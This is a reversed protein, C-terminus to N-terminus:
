LPTSPSLVRRNRVDWVGRGTLRIWPLSDFTLFLLSFVPDAFRYGREQMLRNFQRNAEVVDAWSRLSFAGLELPLSFVERGGEIIVLGGGFDAVRDLAAAMDAPNQGLVVVDFGSSITTALGGLRNTFGIVRTRTIWRGRRDLLAVRLAGAPLEGAPVPETIVSSVLRMGTADEPAAFASAPLRPIVALEYADRWAPPTLPGTLAGNMAVVKGDAVVLAPIPHTLDPIM